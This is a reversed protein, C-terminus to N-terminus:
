GTRPLLRALGVRVNVHVKVEGEYTAGGAHVHVLATYAGHVTHLIASQSRYFPLSNRMLPTGKM